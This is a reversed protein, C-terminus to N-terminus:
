SNPVPSWQFIIESPHRDQPNKHVSIIVGKIGDVRVTEGADPSNNTFTVEAQQPLPHAASKPEDPM